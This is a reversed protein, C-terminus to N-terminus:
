IINWQLHNDTADLGSLARLGDPPSYMLMNHLKFCQFIISNIIFGYYIEININGHLDSLFISKSKIRSRTKTKNIKLSIM